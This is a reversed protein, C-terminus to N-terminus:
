TMVYIILYTVTGLPFSSADLRSGFESENVLEAAFITENNKWAEFRGVNDSEDDSEM